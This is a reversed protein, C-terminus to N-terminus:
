GVGCLGSAGALDLLAPLPHEALSPLAGTAVNSSSCVELRIQHERLHEILTPDHRTGIGM